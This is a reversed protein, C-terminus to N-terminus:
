RSILYEAMEEEMLACGAFGLNWIIQGWSSHSGSHMPIGAGSRDSVEMHSRRLWVGSHTKEPLDGSRPPEVATGGVYYCPYLADGGAGGGSRLASYEEALQRLKEM